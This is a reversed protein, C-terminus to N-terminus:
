WDQISLSGRITNYTSERELREVEKKVVSHQEAEATMIVKDEDTLRMPVVTKVELM